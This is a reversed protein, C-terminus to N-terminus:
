PEAVLTRALLAAEQHRGLKRLTKIQRLTRVTPDAPYMYCDMAMLTQMHQRSPLLGLAIIFEEPTSVPLKEPLGQLLASRIMICESPLHEGPASQGIASVLLGFSLVGPNSISKSSSCLQSMCRAALVPETLAKIAGSHENWRMHNDLWKPWDYPMRLGGCLIMTSPTTSARLRDYLEPGPFLGFRVHTARPDAVHERGGFIFIELHHNPATGVLESIDAMIRDRDADEPELVVVNLETRVRRDRECVWDMIAQGARTASQGDRGHDLAQAYRQRIQSRREPHALEEPVAKLLAELTDVQVGADRTLYEIDQACYLPFEKMRPNNFLIVPKDLLLFEIYISSVDSVMLDAAHMMGSYDADELYHINPTASAINKYLEKWRDKTLNHLKILLVTDDNAIKRIGEAICHIASLEPNYTPAFLVIKKAPDIGLRACFAARDQGKAGFLQDSKIFGTVRIPIFVNPALRSAHWPGPVLLMQSLNERRIIPSDTYFAGKCIMGHGVNIVNRIHPIRFHCADAVITVDPAFDQPEVFFPAKARLRDIERDPLGWQPVDTTGAFFEPASFATQAVGITRLYEEIPELFPLHLTREAYFLIKPLSSQLTM